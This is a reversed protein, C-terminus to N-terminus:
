SMMMASQTLYVTSWEARAAQTPAHLAGVEVNIHEIFQPAGEQVATEANNVSQRVQTDLNKLLVTCNVTTEPVPTGYAVLLSHLMGLVDCADHLSPLVSNAVKLTQTLRVYDNVDAPAITLAEHQQALKQLLVNTRMNYVNPGFLRTIDLCHLPSPRLASCLESSDVLIVGVCQAEPLAVFVATEAVYRAFLGELEAISLTLGDSLGMQQNLEGSFNNRMQTAELQSSGSAGDSWNLFHAHERLSDVFCDFGRSYAVAYMSANHLCAFTCELMMQFNTDLSLINSLSLGNNINAEEDAATVFASFDRDCLLRPPLALIGIGDTITREISARLELGSPRPMLVDNLSNLKLSVRFLPARKSQLVGGRASVDRAPMSGVIATSVANAVARESKTESFVRLAVSSALAVNPKSASRAARERASVERYMRIISETDLARNADLCANMVESVSLTAIKLYTEAIQFDVLRIFKVLKQCHARMAARQTYGGGSSMLGFGCDELFDALSKRCCQLVLKHVIAMYEALQTEVHLRKRGQRECFDTLTDTSDLSEIEFLRFNWIQRCISRLQLLCDGHTPHLLFLEHQLSRKCRSLKRMKTIKRWAVFSRWKPFRQFFPIAKLAVYLCAQRSHEDRTVFEAAGNRQRHTLGVSSSLYFDDKAAEYRVNCLAYPNSPSAVCYEYTNARPGERMDSLSTDITSRNRIKKLPTVTKDLSRSTSVLQIARTTRAGFRRLTRSGGGTPVQDSVIRQLSTNAGEPKSLQPVLVLRHSLNTSCSKHAVNSSAM